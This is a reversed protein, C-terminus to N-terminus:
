TTKLAELVISSMNEGSHSGQIEIFEISYQHRRFNSDLWKVNIALMSLNNQSTWSDLTLCITFATAKIDKSIEAVIDDVRAELRKRITDKKPIWENFGAARM